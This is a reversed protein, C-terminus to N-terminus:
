SSFVYTEPYPEVVDPVEIYRCLYQCRLHCCQNVNNIGGGYYIFPSVDLGTFPYLLDKSRHNSHRGFYSGRFFSPSDKDLCPTCEMLFSDVIVRNNGTLCAPFHPFPVIILKFRSDHRSGSPSKFSASCYSYKDSKKEDEIRCRVFLYINLDRV